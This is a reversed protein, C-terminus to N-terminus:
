RGYMYKFTNLYSKIQHHLDEVDSEIWSAAKDYHNKFFYKELIISLFWYFPKENWNNARDSVVFGDFTIKVSGQSVNLIQKDHEVEVDKIDTLHIKISATIKYYDSINKWPELIIHIQKGEPTVQEQNMKEYWDWGREFFFSSIVSYLESTNFLGDYSLKLRDIVLTREVM